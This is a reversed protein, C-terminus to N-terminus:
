GRNANCQMKSQPVNERQAHDIEQEGDELCEDLAEIDAANGANKKNFDNAPGPTSGCSVPSIGNKLVM